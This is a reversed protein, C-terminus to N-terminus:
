DLAPDPPSELLHEVLFDLTRRRGYPSGRAGHGVSPIVLMDFDKDARLVISYDEVFADWRSNPETVEDQAVDTSRGAKRMTSHILAIAPSERAVFVGYEHGAEDVAIWAHNIFTDPRQAEGPEITGHGIRREGCLLFLQVPEDLRNVFRVSTPGSGVISRRGSPLLFPAADALDLPEVRRGDDTVALALLEPEILALLNGNHVGM